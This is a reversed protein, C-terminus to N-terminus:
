ASAEGGDATTDEESNAAAYAVFAALKTRVVQVQEITSWGKFAGQDCAFDIVKLANQIDVLGLSPADTQPTDSLINELIQLTDDSVISITTLSCYLDNGDVLIYNVQESV